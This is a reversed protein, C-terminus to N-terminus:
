ANQNLGEFAALYYEYMAQLHTKYLDSSTDVSGLATVVAEWAEIFDNKADEGEENLVYGAYAREAELLADALASLNTDQAFAATWFADLADSYCADLNLSYFLSVADEGLARYQAMIALVDELTNSDGKFATYLVKYSNALFEVLGGKTYYEVADFSEKTGDDHTVTISYGHASGTILDFVAEFTLSYDNNENEDDANIVIYNFTRYANLMAENESAFIAERLNCAKEYATFLLAYTGKENAATSDEMIAAV